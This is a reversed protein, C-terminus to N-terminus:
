ALQLWALYSVAVIQSFDPGLVPKLPDSGVESFRKRDPRTTGATLKFRPSQREHM